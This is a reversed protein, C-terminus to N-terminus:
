LSFSAGNSTSVRMDEPDVDRSRSFLMFKTKNATLVLKLDTLSKQISDVGQQLNGIAQQVSSACSYNVTMQTSIFTLPTFLIEFTM